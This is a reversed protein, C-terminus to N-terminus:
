SEVGELELKGLEGLICDATKIIKNMSDNLTVGDGQWMQIYDASSSGIDLGIARGVVYAVAEAETERVIKSGAQKRDVHLLEHAYEHVLTAFKEADPLNALIEVKGKHSLGRAGDLAENYEVVIGRLRMSEELKNLYEGPDGSTNFIDPVPDGDTQSIDFVHTTSFFVQRGVVEDNENKRQYINPRFIVIGKEGKKVCRGMTLWKKFGAVHSAEPCQHYILMMNSFSYKHFRSAFKLYQVFKDSKGNAMDKALEAFMAESMSKAESKDM